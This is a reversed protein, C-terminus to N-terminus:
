SYVLNYMYREYDRMCKFVIRKIEMVANRMRSKDLKVM